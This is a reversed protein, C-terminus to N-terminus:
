RGSLVMSSIKGMADGTDSLQHRDLHLHWDGPSGGIRFLNYGARPKHGGPGQSAAAVGVVPVRADQGELWFLSNVHTHGHIVLEAGVERMVQGFRAIGVLRKHTEAAGRVPPHHIMVVRFLGERKAETLLHATARAQRPSFFGAASFPPTAIASSCGILAVPGRRRLSPFLKREPDFADPTDDGRVYDHWLCMARQYAGRVYADHNGPVVTAWRPDGTMQLWDRAGSLELGTALNVLDGTIALHDPEKRRLDELVEVLANPFLHKRRNRHWNVFGTLRKSALELLTLRPLPGLHVDSIHALKFM